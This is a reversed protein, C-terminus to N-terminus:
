EKVGKKGPHHFIYGSDVIQDRLDGKIDPKYYKCSDEAHCHRFPYLTCIYDKSEAEDYVMWRNHECKILFGDKDKLSVGGKSTSIRGPANVM